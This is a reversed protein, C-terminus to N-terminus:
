KMIFLQICTNRIDAQVKSKIFATKKFIKGSWRTSNRKKQAEKLRYFYVNRKM